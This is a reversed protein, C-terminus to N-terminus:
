KNWGIEVKFVQEKRGEEMKYTFYRERFWKFEGCFFFGQYDLEPYLGTFINKVITLFSKFRLTFPLTFAFM